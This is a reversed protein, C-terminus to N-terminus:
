VMQSVSRFADGFEPQLVDALVIDLGAGALLTLCTEEFHFPHIRRLGSRLNSVGAMTTVPEQFVAGTSLLRVTKVAEAVRM